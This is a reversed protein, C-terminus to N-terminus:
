IHTIIKNGQVNPTTADGKLYIIEKTMKREEWLKTIHGLANRCNFM